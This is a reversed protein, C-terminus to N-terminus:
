PVMKLGRGRKLKKAGQKTDNVYRDYKLISIKMTKLTKLYLWDWHIMRVKAMANIHESGISGGYIKLEKPYIRSRQSPTCNPEMM